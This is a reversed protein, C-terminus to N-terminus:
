SQSKRRASEYLSKSQDYQNGEEMIERIEVEKVTKGLSLIFVKTFDGFLCRIWRQPLWISTNALLRKKNGDCDTLSVTVKHHMRQM